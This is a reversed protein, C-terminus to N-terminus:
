FKLPKCSRTMYVCKEFAAPPAPPPPPDQSAGQKGSTCIYSMILAMIFGVGVCVCVLVCVHTYVRTVVELEFTAFNFLRRLQLENSINILRRRGPSYGLGLCLGQGLGM